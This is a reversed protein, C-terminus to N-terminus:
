PARRPPASPTRIGPGGEGAAGLAARDSSRGAARAHRIRRHWRLWPLERPWHSVVTHFGRRVRLMGGGRLARTSMDVSLDPDRVIRRCPGLHISVDMDDHMLQDHRHVEDRVALWATRRIAYNSGFLPVHGLASGVLAVYAGLYASSLPRRLWPPGGAFRATGTLAALDPDEVFAGTIREIWDPPPVCDADLRAIVDGTAHDLGTAAAAPIGPSPEFVVRAGYGAAVDATEDRSANDVVIVEWARVRQEALAGLCRALLAADDKAPIVVSM